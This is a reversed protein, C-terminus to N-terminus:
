VPLCATLHWGQLWGQRLCSAMYGRPQQAHRQEQKQKQKTSAGCSSSLRAAMCSCDLRTGDPACACMQVMAACRTIHMHLRRRRLVCCHQAVILMLRYIGAQQMAHVHTSHAACLVWAVTCAHALFVHVCRCCFFMCRCVSGSSRICAIMCAGRCGRVQRYLMFIEYAAHPIQVM